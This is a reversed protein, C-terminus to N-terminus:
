FSNLAAHGRFLSLWARALTLTCNRIRYDVELLTYDVDCLERNRLELFQFGLKVAFELM